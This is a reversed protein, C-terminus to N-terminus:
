RGNIMEEIQATRGAQAHDFATVLNYGVYALLGAFALVFLFKTM